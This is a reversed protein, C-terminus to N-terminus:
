LLLYRYGPSSGHEQTLQSLYKLCVFRGGLLCAPKQLLFALVSAPSIRACYSHSLQNNIHSM